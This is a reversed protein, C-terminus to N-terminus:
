NINNEMLFNSYLLDDNIIHAYLHNNLFDLYEEKTKEDFNNVDLKASLHMIKIKLIDHKAHHENALPYHHERQYAEETQFHFLAYQELYKFCDYTAEYIYNFQCKIFYINIIRFMEKHQSDILDINTALKEDWQILQM